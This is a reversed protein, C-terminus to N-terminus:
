FGAWSAALLPPWSPCTPEASLLSRRHFSGHACAAGGSFHGTDTHQFGCGWCDCRCLGVPSSPLTARPAAGPLAPMGQAVQKHLALPQCGILAGLLTVGCGDLTNIRLSATLPPQPQEFPRLWPEWPGLPCPVDPGDCCMLRLPPKNSPVWWQAPSLVARCTSPDRVQLLLAALPPGSFGRAPVRTHGPRATCIMLCGELVPFGLIPWSAPVSTPCSRRCGQGKGGVWM